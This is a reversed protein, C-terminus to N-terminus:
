ACHKLWARRIAWDSLRELPQSFKAERAVVRQRIWDLQDEDDEDIDDEGVLEREAFQIEIVQNAAANFMSLLNEKDESALDSQELVPLADAFLFGNCAGNNYVDYYCRSVLRLAELTEEPAPGENPILGKVQQYMEQHMGNNEWYTTVSQITTATM